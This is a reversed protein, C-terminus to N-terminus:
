RPGIKKLVLLLHSFYGGSDCGIAGMFRVAISGQVIMKDSSLVPVSSASCYIHHQQIPAILHYPPYHNIM